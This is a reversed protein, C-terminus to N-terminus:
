RSVECSMKGLSDPKWHADDLVKVLAWMESHGLGCYEHCPMLHDGPSNFVTRVQSVYGPVVMTNANTGAVIFGHIVDPSTVRFTVPRGVPVPICRPVFEFQTAIVRVTVSGDPNVQTGLNSAVFESNTSLTTPDITEVHSPPRIAMMISTVVFVALMIGVASAAVIGWREESKIIDQESM